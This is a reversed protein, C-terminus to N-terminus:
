CTTSPPSAKRRSRTPPFSRSRHRAKWRPASSARAPSPSPTSNRPPSPHAEQAAVSLAPLMALLLARPTTDPALAYEGVQLKGAAGTQRALVQWQVRDGTDIGQAQLTRLVKDLSDGRAVILSEDPEIGALPADAFGQYRQWYWAAVALGALLLVLLFRLFAGGSVHQKM